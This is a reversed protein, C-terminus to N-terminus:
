PQSTCDTQIWVWGDLMTLNERTLCSCAPLDAQHDAINPSSAAERPSSNRHVTGVTLLLNQLEQWPKGNGVTHTCNPESLLHSGSEVRVGTSQTYCIGTTCLPFKLSAQTPPHRGGSNPGSHSQPLKWLQMTSISVFPGDRRLCHPGPWSMTAVAGDTWPRWIWTMRSLGAPRLPHSRSLHPLFRTLGHERWASLRPGSQRESSFIRGATLVARTRSASLWGRGLSTRCQPLMCLLPHVYALWDTLATGAGLTEPLGPDSGFITDPAPRLLFRVLDQVPRRATSEPEAFSPDDCEPLIDAGPRPQLTCVHCQEATDVQYADPWGQLAPHVNVMRYSICAPLATLSKGTALSSSSGSRWGPYCPLMQGPQTDTTWKAWTPAPITHATRPPKQLGLGARQSLTPCCLDFVHFAAVQWCVPTTGPLFILGELQSLCSYASNHPCCTRVPHAQYHSGVVQQLTRLLHLISPCARCAPLCQAGSQAGEQTLAVLRLLCSHLWLPLTCPNLPLATTPAPMYKAATESEAAPDTTARTAVPPGSEGDVDDVDFWISRYPKVLAKGKRKSRPKAKPRTEKSRRTSPAAFAEADNSWDDRPETSTVRRKSVRGDKQDSRSGSSAHSLSGCPTALSTAQVATASKLLLDGAQIELRAAYPIDPDPGTGTSGAPETDACRPMKKPKPRLRGKADLQPSSTRGMELDQHQQVTAEAGVSPTSDPCDDALHGPDTGTPDEPYSSDAAPALERLEQSALATQPHQWTSEGTIKNYYFTWDTGQARHAEWPAPLDVDLPLRQPESPRRWTADKTVRNYYFTRGTDPDQHGTWPEPLDMELTPALLHGRSDRKPAAPPVLTDYSAWGLLWRASLLTLPPPHLRWRLSPHLGDDQDAVLGACAQLHRIDVTYTRLKQERSGQLPRVNRSSQDTSPLILVRVGVLEPRHGAVVKAETGAALLGLNLRDSKREDDSEPDVAVEVMEDDDTAQRRMNLGRALHDSSPLTSGLTSVDLKLPLPQGHELLSVPHVPLWPLGLARSSLFGAPSDYAPEVTFLDACTPCSTPLCAHTFQSLRDLLLHEVSFRVTTSELEWRPGASDACRCTLCSPFSWLLFLRTFLRSGARLQALPLVM